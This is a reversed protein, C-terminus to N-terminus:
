DTVTATTTTRGNSPVTFGEPHGITIDTQGATQPQFWASQLDGSGGTYTLPSTTITGVIPASSTVSVEVPDIGGRLEQTTSLTGTSTLRYSRVQIRTDDSFVTTSFTDGPSWLHFGSAMVSVTSQRDDYGAAQATMTTSGEELGQVYFWLSSTHDVDTFTISKSGAATRSISLLATSDSAVTVTIDTPEPPLEGLRVSTNVQLDKGVSVNGMTIQGATVTATTTTRGNSPVTFGEPHGITIDTQGATQPQFWASQLDGSGGTYTLPSTTITGVIPASSTVSVEVPDIGGRLEQTTSLTGTSTLRYSRVQIRTDDSFVTTSFTDGPSWLHFGSAMVSVTSQRDDYGAAQATMTTSGEELGQVYFWLSSTHDVDTFTISKSGAATRSISLLATSDSAVTVTIDTPEPPLEGLRVSTNVQLDEGVTANGMTIVPPPDVRVTREVPAVDPATATLRSTGENVGSLTFTASTTGELVLVSELVTFVDPDASSLTVLLGGEDAPGSLSVTVIRDRGEYVQITGTPSLTMSLHVTATRSHPAFGEARALIVASGIKHGTVQPNTPPTQQGEAITVSEPVTAITPDSSELLVTTGGAPAPDSLSIPLSVSQGPAMTPITGVSVTTNTGGTTQTADVFGPAAATITTSGEAEGTVSFGGTTEGEAVDVSAPSVSVISPDDSAMSVTAGGAPAPDDLVVTGENTRGVGVLPDLDFHMTRLVVTVVGTGTAFGEGSISVSASGAASGSDVPVDVTLQGAAVLATAPPSVVSPTDSDLALELGDSGAPDSLTVRLMGSSFTRLEVDAVSIIPLATITVTDPLSDYLGDNVVLTATYEGAVDAVFSPDVVTVDDLTATSGEPGQLNWAYTVVEGDPDFSGSGDLTVTEGAIVQQDVGADAVPERLATITVSDEDSDLEGDNVVLTATYDGAVDPTFSVSPETLSDLVATSGEPGRLTWSFTLPDGDPDSSGTGDLAVQEGVLVQQDDGADAVPPLNRDECPDPTPRDFQQGEGGGRNNGASRVWVTAIGPTEVLSWTRGGIGTYLQEEGEVLVVVRSINRVSTVHIADCDWEVSIDADSATAPAPVALLSALLAIAVTVALLRRLPELAGGVLDRTLQARSTNM